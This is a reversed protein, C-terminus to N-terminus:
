YIKLADVLVCRRTRTFTQPNTIGEGTTTAISYSLYGEGDLGLGTTSPGNKVFLTTDMARGMETMRDVNLSHIISSHKYGHESKKALAVGEEFSKVRVIPLMPMMQEEMVFPHDPDTEGILIPTAEPLNLGARAALVNANKGVLERNLVPHSCGGADPKMTFVERALKEVQAPLLRVAGAKELGRILANAVKDLVFVQKEGICLLNNDFGCGHIIDKAAKDPCVTDDVLVPPNGPGACIARKGSKMAANVVGPGGTVVLLNVLPSKCIADFSELTPKEITCILNEIGTAAQVAQNYARIALAASRAGGPHPNFLISNGAAVANIINGSLTPVSHTVPLIAAVVGFPTYEEHMLGHDGSLAYPRLWEVGPVLPVLHLKGIKHELRGIKTEEFEFKGWADANAIALKKIIDVVQKRAAVGKARLQEYGKQAAAAATPVDQFVGYAPGSSNVIAPASPAAAPATSASGSRINRVVESVISRVLNEDIQLAM